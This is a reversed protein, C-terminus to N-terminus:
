SPSTSSMASSGCGRATVTRQRRSRAASPPLYSPAWERTATSSCYPPRHSLAGLPSSSKLLWAGSSTAYTATRTPSRRPPPM